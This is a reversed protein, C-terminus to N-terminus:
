GKFILCTHCHKAYFWYKQYKREKKAYDCSDKLGTRQNRAKKRNGEMGRKPNLARMSPNEHGGLFKEKVRLFKEIGTIIKMKLSSIHIELNSIHM